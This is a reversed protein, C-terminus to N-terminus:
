LEKWILGKRYKTLLEKAKPDLPTSESKFKIKRSEKIGRSTTFLTKTMLYRHQM